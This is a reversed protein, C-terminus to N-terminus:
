NRRHYQNRRPRQHPDIWAPPTFTPLGDAAIHLQWHGAHILRHHHACLLVANTLATTGGDAWHTIHHGDCWRPPRDCGPFACGGDRLTLARRLPGGILRRDRGVDLPVGAGDLIAPLLRADCALRRVAAASLRAGTDLTGASLQGALVDYAVTLVLQPRDGGNVPLEGSTLALRCVEVLADARRQAPSRPDPIGAPALGGPPCLPDLAATVVAAAEADLRGSLRLGGHGDCALTFGRGAVAAREDRELRRRDVEDAIQPAVHALIRAGLRRLQVPDFEAAADVLAVAAKGVLDPGVQGPLEHVSDAVARAQEVSIAGGALAERVVALGDLDAALGQLRRAAPISVGLAERLWVATCSAGRAVALGRGDVERVAALKAAVLMREAAELGAVLALLEVDTLPYVPAAAVAAADAALRALVEGV